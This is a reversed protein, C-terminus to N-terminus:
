RETVSAGWLTSDKHTLLSSVNQKKLVQLGSHPVFGRGGVKWARPPFGVEATMQNYIGAFLPRRGSTPNSNAWRRRRQGLLLGNNSWRGINAQISGTGRSQGSM